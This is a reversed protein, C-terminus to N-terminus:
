EREVPMWGASLSRLKMRFMPHKIRKFVVKGDVEFWPRSNSDDWGEGAAHDASLAFCYSFNNLNKM